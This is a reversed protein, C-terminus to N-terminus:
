VPSSPNSGGHVTKSVTISGSYSEGIFYMGFYIIDLMFKYHFIKEYVKLFGYLFQSGGYAGCWAKRM